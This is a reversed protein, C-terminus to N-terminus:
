RHLHSLMKVKRRIDKHNLYKTIRWFISSTSNSELYDTPFLCKEIPMKLINCMHEIRLNNLYDLM